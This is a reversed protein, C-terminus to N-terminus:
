WQLVKQRLLTWGRKFLSVKIARLASVQAWPGTFETGRPSGDSPYLNPSSCASDRDASHTTGTTLSACTTYALENHIEQMGPVVPTTTCDCYCGYHYAARESM